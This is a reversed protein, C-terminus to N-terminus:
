DSDSEISLDEILQYIKDLEEITLEEETVDSPTPQITGASVRSCCHDILNILHSQFSRLLEQVMVEGYLKEDYTVSLHLSKDEIIGVIDIPRVHQAPDTEHSITKYATIQFETGRTSEDMEGLYNFNMQPQLNFVPLDPQKHATLYKLIGYGIGKNPIRRLTEKTQRLAYSMDHSRTMDVVVPFMTTFWGVTRSIAIDKGIEERGHGELNLLIKENGSWEKVALGLATILLDNIQTRYAKNATTVLRDTEEPSLQITLTHSANRHQISATSDSPLPPINMQELSDWYDVEQRLKSGEAYQQLHHSWKLYSDTKEQLTVEEQRLAQQYGVVFDELVIRWSIGDMVLHHILIGLFDTSGSKILVLKVLPGNALDFHSHRAMFLEAEESSIDSEHLVTFDFLPDHLGRNYAAVGTGIRDFVMRLADHHGVIKTFVKKILEEDFGQDHQLMVLQGYEDAALNSETFFWTQIPTLQVDGEVAGQDISRHNQELCAALSIIQPHEFVNRLELHFQYKQLRGIFFIAKISDGGIQFFNDTIGVKEIGLTEEWLRALLSETENRPAVYENQQAQFLEHLAKRDVKGNVTLPIRDVQIVHTPVMYYPLRDLLFETVKLQDVKEDSVLYACLFKAQREDEQDLVTCERLAPYQLLTNEIEGLEIRVGRIKVQHDTRTMYEIVGDFTFRGLDGSKYMAKGNWKNRVKKEDTVDPKNIYGRFLGEGAIYIEGISGPPVVRQHEDLIYIQMNQIPVGIPVSGTTDKAPDYQYIMCGVTTETPGYENFIEVRGGFQDHISQALSTKLNEGGVIFRKVTTGTYTEKILALHAPTLKMITYEDDQIIRDIMYDRNDDQYVIIQNGSILPTFFTTVSLDFSISSYMAFVENEDRVYNDVCALTYNVLSKHEIMVGKPQGTSGSTYNIYVLDTPKVTIAPNSSDGTYLSADQLYLIEEAVDVGQNEAINTLLLSAGSDKFMYAIRAAPHAPDLPLYAGGAKIIGWLGILLEISNTAMLGVVVDPGVGKTQLLRALQNAKQNLESYTVQQDDCRVAVKDPNKEVQAEFFQQIGSFAPLELQTRNFQHLAFDKEEATVLEIDALRVEMLDTLNDLLDVYYGVVREILREDIHPHYLLRATVDEGERVVQLILDTQDSEILDQLSAEVTHINELLVIVKYLPVDSELQEYVRGVSVYQNLYGDIVTKRVQATFENFTLNADMRDRLPICADVSFPPEIEKKNYPPSGVIIDKHDFYKYLLLKFAAVLTVYLTTDKQGALEILKAATDRQIRIVHTKKASHDLPRNSSSFSIQEIPGSLRELWYDRMEEFREDATMITENM